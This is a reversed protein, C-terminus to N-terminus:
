NPLAQSVVLAVMVSLLAWMGVHGRLKEMGGRGDTCDRRPPSSRPLPRWGRLSASSRSNRRRAAARLMAM